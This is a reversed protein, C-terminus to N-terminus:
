LGELEALLEDLTAWGRSQFKRKEAWARLAEVPIVEIEDGMMGDAEPQDPQLYCRRTWKTEDKLSM